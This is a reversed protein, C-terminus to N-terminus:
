IREIDELRYSTGVEERPEPTMLDNLSQLGTTGHLIKSEQDM